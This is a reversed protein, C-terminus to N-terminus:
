KEISVSPNGKGDNSRRESLDRQVTSHVGPRRQAITADM